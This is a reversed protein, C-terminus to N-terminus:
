TVVKLRRPQPAGDHSWRDRGRHKAEYLAQDARRSTALPSDPDHVAVGASFTPRVADNWATRLRALLADAGADSAGPLVLLVEDGGYRVAIDESRLVGRVTKGFDALVLDGAHHGQEDNVEKFHDLDLLIVADGPQLLDLLRPLERRNLFGTLPDTSAATVLRGTRETAQATRSALSQGILLWIGLTVPLKVDDTPTFGGACIIWLPTAVPLMALVTSSTQTLGMFVFAVTFFGTYSSSIGDTLLAAITLSGLEVLPFVLLARAPLREWPLRLLGLVVVMSGGALALAVSRDSDKVPLFWITCVIVLTWAASFAVALHAGHRSDHAPPLWIWPKRVRASGM